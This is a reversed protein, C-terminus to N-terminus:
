YNPEWINVGPQWRIPKERKRERAEQRAAQEALFREHNVDIDHRWRDIMDRFTQMTVEHGQRMIELLRELDTGGIGLGRAAATPTVVETRIGERVGFEDVTTRTGNRSVLQRILAQLEADRQREEENWAREEALRQETIATRHREEAALDRLATVILQVQADSGTTAPLIRTPLSPYRPPPPIPRPVHVYPKRPPPAAYTRRPARAAPRSTTPVAGALPRAGLGLGLGGPRSTVPPPAPAPQAPLHVEGWSKSNGTRISPSPSNTSSSVQTFVPATTVPVTRKGTTSTTAQRGLSTTSTTGHRALGTLSPGTNYRTHVPISSGTNYRRPQLVSSGAGHRLTLSDRPSIPIVVDPLPEQASPHSHSSRPSVVPPADSSTRPSLVKIPVVVPPPSVASSRASHTRSGPRVVVAPRHASSAGSSRSTRTPAVAPVPDAYVVEEVYHPEHPDPEVVTVTHEVEVPVVKKKRAFLRKFLGGLSRKKKKPPVPHSSGSAYSYDRPVKNGTQEDVLMPPPGADYIDASHETWRQEHHSVVSGTGTTTPRTPPPGFLSNEAPPIVPATRSPPDFVSGERPSVRTGGARLSETRSATVSMRHPVFGPDRLVYRRSSIDSGTAPHHLVPRPPQLESGTHPTPPLPREPTDLVVVDREPKVKKKKKLKSFLQKLKNKKKPKVVIVEPEPPLDESHGYSVYPQPEEVYHTQYYPRESPTETGRRHMPDPSGAPYFQAEGIRDESAFRSRAPRPLPSNVAAAPKGAVGSQFSNFNAM